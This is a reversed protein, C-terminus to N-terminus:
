EGGRRLKVNRQERELQFVFRIIQEKKAESLHIYKMRIDFTDKENRLAQCYVVQGLVHMMMSKGSQITKFDALICENPRVQKKSTFRIGGGSIDVVTDEYDKYYSDSVETFLEQQDEREEKMPDSLVRFALEAHYSIREHMRRQVKELPSLINFSLIRKQEDHYSTLCSVHCMYAELPAIFYMVYTEKKSFADENAQHLIEMEMEHDSHIKEIRGVCICPQRDADVEGKMSVSLYMKVTTGIKVYEEIM